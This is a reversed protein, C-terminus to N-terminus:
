EAGGGKALTLSVTIDEDQVEWGFEGYPVSLKSLVDKAMRERCGIQMQMKVTGDCCCLHIMMATADNLLKETIGEYFDFATVAQKVGIEGDCKSELSTFVGVLRLNDLSERICYALESSPPLSGEEGLLLLNGRRKIYACLVSVKAISSKSRAPDGEALKLLQEAKELQPAVEKAIRDYLRSKEETRARSEKLENEAKLLENNEGLREQTDGLEDILHNLHKVDDQGLM